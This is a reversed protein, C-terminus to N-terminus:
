FIQFLLLVYVLRLMRYSISRLTDFVNMFKWEGARLAGHSEIKFNVFSMEFTKSLLRHYQAATSWHGLIVPTYVYDSYEHRAFLFILFIKQNYGGFAFFGM